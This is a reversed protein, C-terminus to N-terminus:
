CENSLEEAFAKQLISKKLGELNPLKEYNHHELEDAKSKMSHLMNVVCEPDPRTQHMKVGNNDISPGSLDFTQM